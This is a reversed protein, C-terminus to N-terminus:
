PLGRLEEVPLSPSCSGMPGDLGSIGRKHGLVRSCVCGAGKWQSDRPAVAMLAVAECSAKSLGTMAINSLSRLM